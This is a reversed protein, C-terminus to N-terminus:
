RQSTHRREDLRDRLYRTADGRLDSLRPFADLLRRHTFRYTLDLIALAQRAQAIDETMNAALQDRLDDLAAEIEPLKGSLRLTNVVTVYGDVALYLIMAAALFIQRDAPIGDFFRSVRPHVYKLLLVSMLGFLITNKLCVRGNLNFPYSSYDWWTMHFLKEMGWSTIYEVLSALVAGLVFLLLINQSVPTLLWIVLV